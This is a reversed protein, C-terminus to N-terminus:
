PNLSTLQNMLHEIKSKLEQTDKDKNKLSKQYFELAKKHNSTKYLADGLHELLIPDDPIIKVAKELLTVAKEYDGKKYHLWGLSDTIYGDDPKFTLAKVILDEAEELNMGLDAYTYGLYNLANADEPDLAIVKKMEDICSIRDGQKDYVVGLRFHLRAHKQDLVLGRKYMEVAKDYQDEEEYFSGLYLIFETNDPKKKLAKELLVISKANEKMDLYHFASLLVSKEYYTSESSVKVFAQVAKQPQNNQEHCIGLFYNFDDKIRSTELVKEILYVADPYLDKKIYHRVINRLVDPNQGSQEGIESLIASAKAEKKDYHYYLALALSARVDGPDSGLIQKYLGPLLNTKHEIEYIQILSYLAEVLDSNLRFSEKLEKEADPYNKEIIYLKGLYYHGSFSEPFHTTLRKFTDIAKSTYNMKSYLGGLLFYTAQDKPDIVLIKEFIAPVERDQNQILKIQAFISLLDKNDPHSDLTQTITREANNIDNNYVYLKALEIKLFVSEPDQIIAKNMYELAKALDGHQRNLESQLFYVIHANTKPEPFAAPPKDKPGWAQPSLKVTSCASIMFSCAIMGAVILRPGLTNILYKKSKM